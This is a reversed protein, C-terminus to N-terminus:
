SNKLKVRYYFPLAAYPSICFVGICAALIYSGMASSAESEYGTQSILLFGVGLGFVVGALISLVVHATLLFKGAPRGKYIALFIYVQEWIGIASPIFFLSFIPDLSLDGPPGYSALAFLIFAVLGTAILTLLPGLWYLVKHLKTSKM